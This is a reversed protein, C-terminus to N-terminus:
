MRIAKKPKLGMGAALPNSNLKSKMQNKQYQWYFNEPIPNTRKDINRNLYILAALLDFHGYAETREFSKFHKDWIGSRLNGIMEKCEPSIILQGSKVLERVSNVMAFLDTKDTSVFPIKYDINLDNIM